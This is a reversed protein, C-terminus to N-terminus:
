YGSIVFPSYEIQESLISPYCDSSKVAILEPELQEMTYDGELLSLTTM